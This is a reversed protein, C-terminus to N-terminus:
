APIKKDVEIADWKRGHEVEPLWHEAESADIKGSSETQNTVKLGHSKYLNLFLKNLQCLKKKNNFHSHCKLMRCGLHCSSVKRM